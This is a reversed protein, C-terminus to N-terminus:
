FIARLQARGIHAIPSTGTKRGEYQLGLQLYRSMTRDYGLSWLLNVGDQLGELMAFAVPSASLGNFQVLVVSSELELSSKGVLNYRGDLGVRQSFLTEEGLDNRSAQLGYRLGIRYVAGVQYNIRLESERFPIRYDRTAFAESELNREGLSSESRLNFRKSLAARVILQNERLVRSEPGGVLLNISRNDQRTYELAFDPSSRNYWATHRVLNGLSVLSTDAFSGEAVWYASAGEGELVKRNLQWISQASLRTLVASFGRADPWLARPQLSVSYQANLVDARVFQDSPTFVRIYNAQDAFAAVEFEDLEAVGNENYDLWTYQGEGAPVQVYAFSRRPESATGIEYLLDAQLLGKWAELGYEVRGLFSQEDEARIISSDRVQLDRWTATWSLRQAKWTGIRGNLLVEHAVASLALEEGRANKDRRMRHTVSYRNRSSDVRGLSSQLLDYYITSALLSDSGPRAFRIDDVETYLHARWGKWDQSLDGRLRGFFSHASDTQANMWSSNILLRFGGQQFLANAGHKWGSYADRQRFHDLRYGLRRDAGRQLELGASLWHEDLLPDATGLNWDRSFEMPRYNEIPAFRAGAFEYRGESFLQWRPAPPLAAASDAAASAAGQEQGSAARGAGLPIAQRFALQLGLDRDDRDDSDSFTNEDRRSYALEASWQGDKWPRFDAGLVVLQRSLPAALLRVPEFEGQPVGDLPAIWEYVRGNAVSPALRYNGLGPGLQTFVVQYLQGVAETTYVFVTDFGLTDVVRYLIRGPDFSATDFAPAFALQVSDGASELVERDRQSLPGDLTQNRGDQETFASLRVDLVGSADSYGLQGLALSRFYAREAYEFEVQIRLDKTIVRRPTFILEGANYDMVYDNEAGRRLLEGDIYVRESGALVIIFRENNNGRLLYPGQNGELPTIFQRRYQGRAVAASAAATWQGGGEQLFAGRYQAGQLRRFLNMFYSQPRRMEYDGVTLEHPEKRMRIFVKDFEQLQQTNGEPQVPINNDTIAAEIEVDRLTGSLQLNLSSNLVVDQRNGFSLGRSFSGSYDLGGMDLYSRESLRQVAYAYPNQLVDVTDLGGRAKHYYVRSFDLAYVRYQVLASDPRPEGLFRLVSAPALLTYDRGEVLLTTDARTPGLAWVKVSWPVLSLTDLRLSDACPVVATRLGPVQARLSAAGALVLALLSLLLPRYHLYSLRAEMRPFHLMPLLPRLM